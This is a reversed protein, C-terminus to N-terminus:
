SSTDTFDSSIPLISPPQFFLRFLKFFFFRVNYARFLFSKRFRFVFKNDSNWKNDPKANNGNFKLQDGNENLNFVNPNGDSDTKHAVGDM